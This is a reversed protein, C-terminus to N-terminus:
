LPKQCRNLWVPLFLNKWVRWALLFALCVKTNYIRLSDACNANLQLHFSENWIFFPLQKIRTFKEELCKIYRSCYCLCLPTVVLGSSYKIHKIAQVQQRMSSRNAACPHLRVSWVKYRAIMNGSVHKSCCNINTWCLVTDLNGGPRWRGALRPTDPLLESLGASIDGSLGGHISTAQWPRLQARLRIKPRFSTLILAWVEGSCQSVIEFVYICRGTNM